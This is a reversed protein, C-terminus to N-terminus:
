PKWPGWPGWPPCIGGIIGLGSFIAAICRCSALSASFIPIVTGCNMPSSTRKGLRIHVMALPYCFMEFPLCLLPHLGLLLLGLLTLTTMLMLVRVLVRMRALLLRRGTLGARNYRSWRVGDRQCECLEEAAM